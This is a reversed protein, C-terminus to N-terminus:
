YVDCGPESFSRKGPDSGGHWPGPIFSGYLVRRRILDAGGTGKGNCNFLGDSGLGRNKGVGAMDADRMRLEFQGASMEQFRRNAAYLIRELYYRQVFTELDMRAGSVKGGLRNYLEDLCRHRAMVKSREEMKPALAQYVRDNTERLSRVKEFDARTKNMKLEAQDMAAKLAEPEPRQQQGIAEKAQDYRSKAWTKKKNYEDVQKQLTDVSNKPNNRTLPEWEALTM